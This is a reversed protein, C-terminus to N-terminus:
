VTIHMAGVDMGCLEEEAAEAELAELEDLADEM